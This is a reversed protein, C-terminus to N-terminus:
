PNLNDKFRSLKSQLHQVLEIAEAFKKDSIYNRRHSIIIQTEWEYCSGISHDLYQAFHLDTAKSTGEAINSPVSVSCRMLQSRLNFKEIEPFNAIVGYTFDVLELGKKWIELKRFNHRSAM